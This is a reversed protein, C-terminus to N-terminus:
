NQGGTQLQRDDHIESEVLKWTEEWIGLYRPDSKIDYEARPRPLDVIVEGKFRAPRATCVIIRDSLAIAEDISHTILVVTKKTRLFIHEFEKQLVERTMADLAGFPEDLLLIEPDTVLARALGVRQRMGGSLEYSYNQEFGKLGVIGIAEDVKASIISRKEHRLEPGFRVNGEVTRWPLLGYEQFVIAREDSPGVTPVGNVLLEGSSPEQLGGLVNLFTTKGCGSPGVISVFEGAELALSLNWCAVISVQKRPLPFEVCVDRAELTYPM